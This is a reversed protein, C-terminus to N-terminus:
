FFVQGKVFYERVRGDNSIRSTILILRSVKAAFFVGSMLVGVIVGKALDGTAVVTVVTAIMVGSSQWPVTRLGTLSKWSFTNISVMIMVATLAAVPVIALLRHLVVLLVLL